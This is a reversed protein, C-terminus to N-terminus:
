DSEYDLEMQKIKAREFCIKNLLQQVRTLSAGQQTELQKLLDAEWLNLRKLDMGLQYDDIFNHKAKFNYM